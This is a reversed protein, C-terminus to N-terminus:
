EYRVERTKRNQITEYEKELLEKQKEIPLLEFEISHIDSWVRKRWEQLMNLAIEEASVESDISEVGSRMQDLLSYYEDETIFGWGYADQIDNEDRYESIVAKRKERESVIKGVTKEIASIATNLKKLVIKRGKLEIRLDKREKKSLERM